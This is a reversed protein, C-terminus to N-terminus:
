EDDEEDDEHEDERLDDVAAERHEDTHREHEAEEGNDVVLLLDGVGHMVDVIPGNEEEDIIILLWM